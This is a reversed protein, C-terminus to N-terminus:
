LALMEMEHCLSLESELPLLPGSESLPLSPSFLDNTPEELCWVHLIEYSAFGKDKGYLKRFVKKSRKCSQRDVDEVECVVDQDHIRKGDFGVFHSTSLGDLNILKLNIVLRSKQDKLIHHAHGGKKHYKPTVNYLFYGHAALAGSAVAVTTDGEEPMLMKISESLSASNASPPLISILADHLCTRDNVPSPTRACKGTEEKSILKCGGELKSAMHRAKLIGKIQKQKYKSRVSQDIGLKKANELVGHRIRLGMIFKEPDINNKHEHIMRDACAMSSRHGRVTAERKAKDLKLQQARSVRPCTASRETDSSLTHRSVCPLSTEPPSAGGSDGGPIAPSDKGSGLVPMVYGTTRAVGGCVMGPPLPEGDLELNIRNWAEELARRYSLAHQYLLYGDSGAASHEHAEILLETLHEARFGEGDFLSVYEDCDDDLSKTSDLPKISMRHLPFFRAIMGRIPERQHLEIIRGRWKSHEQPTLDSILQDVNTYVLAPFHTLVGNDFLGLVEDKFLKQHPTPLWDKNARVLKTHYTASLPEFPFELALNRPIIASRDTSYSTEHSIDDNLRYDHIGNNAEFEVMCGSPSSDVSNGDSCAHDGQHIDKTPPSDTPHVMKVNSMVESMLLFHIEESCIM